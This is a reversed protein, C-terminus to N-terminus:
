YNLQVKSCVEESFTCSYREARRKLVGDSTLIDDTLPTKILFNCIYKLKELCGSLKETTFHVLLINAITMM